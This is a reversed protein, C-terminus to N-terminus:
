NVGHRKSHVEGTALTEAMRCYSLVAFAQYWRASIEDSDRLITKAWDIMTPRVEARLADVSILPVLSKPEPGDLTVGQERLIWLVALYHDHDSMEFTTSGHDLYLLKRRPPPLQALIERSVYSGELHQAWHCPHEFLTRHFEQLEAVDRDDPPHGTVVLFDVDSYNDFDGTALSGQLYFGVYNESLRERVGAVLKGLM